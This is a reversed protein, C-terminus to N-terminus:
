ALNRQLPASTDEEGLLMNAIRGVETNMGTDTVVCVARGNTIVTSSIVMNSRDGLATEPPLAGAAQKDVPVSEGTMASEDAKLNACELIRADAPVLDGAELVIIDGPVLADTELRVQEGGRVVKALPASMKQLAELAKEASDEQSISICANVVVIVLIIVAEVWDEGGSSLLSLAAAALLVLIMPDRMQDLFRAWLPEKKGGALKNPGYKDLRAKAERPSLGSRGAGLEGLVQGATKAYWQSM